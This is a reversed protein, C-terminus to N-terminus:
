QLPNFTGGPWGDTQEINPNRDLVSQPLDWFYYHDLYNIADGDVDETGNREVSRTTVVFYTSYQAPDNLDISGAKIANELAVRDDLVEDSPDLADFAATKRIVYGRRHVGNLNDYMRRRRLDYSRKGESFFELRRELLIADRLQDQDMGAQLGYLGDGGADIGARARIATLADYAEASNGVENAAEALNLLVEAFRIEIWDTQGQLAAAGGAVTEDVGKRCDFSTRSIRADAQTEIASEQFSWYIDSTKNPQPDNLDWIGSNYALSANFRPDRNLWFTTADYTYASTADDIAKGDKMPFANVMDITAKNFYEGNTGVVFPRSGAERLHTVDVNYQTVLVAEVNSASEDFWLDAFSSHLGKGQAELANKAALNADYATQWRNGSQTPDFQESAYHNLVRGKYAMAAGKTIRGYDAGSEYVDPLGAIALDLDALVQVMCDSTSSRPLQLAEGEGSEGPSLVIPVGGYTAILDFYTKGRLFYAQAKIVNVLDAELSGQDIEVLLTNTLFISRFSDEYIDASGQSVEGYMAIFQGEADDSFGANITPWGGMVRPYIQNLYGTALVPDSWVQEDTFAGLDTKDLVDSCGMLSLVSFMVICNRYIKKM